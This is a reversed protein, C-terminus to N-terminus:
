EDGGHPVDFIGAVRAALDEPDPFIYICTTALASHRMLQQLGRLDGPHRRWYLCAFTRRLAHPGRWRRALGARRLLKRLWGGLSGPNMMRGTLASPLILGEPNFLGGQETRLQRLAAVGAPPLLTWASRNGKGHPVSLVGRELDVDAWRAAAVESRRLVYCLEILVRDRTTRCVASLRARDEPRDLLGASLTAEDRRVTACPIEDWDVDPHRRYFAKLANRCVRQMTPRQAALFATLQEALPRAPVTAQHAAFRRWVLGYHHRTTPSWRAARAPWEIGPVERFSGWERYRRGPAQRPPYARPDLVAPPPLPAPQAARPMTTWDLEPFRARLAARPNRRASPRFSELFARVADARALEPHQACYADFRRAQRAYDRRTVDALPRGLSGTAPTM